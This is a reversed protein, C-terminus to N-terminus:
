HRTGSQDESLSTVSFERGIRANSSKKTKKPDLHNRSLKWDKRDSSHNFIVTCTAYEVINREHNTGPFADREGSGGAAALSSQEITDTSHVPGISPGERNTTRGHVGKIGYRQRTKPAYFNPRYEL